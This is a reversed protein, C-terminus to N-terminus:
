SIEVGMNEQVLVENLMVFHHQLRKNSTTRNFCALDTALVNGTSRAADFAVCIFIGSHWVGNLPLPM